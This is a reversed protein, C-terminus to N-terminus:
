AKIIVSNTEAPIEFPTRIIMQGTIPNEDSEVECCYGDTCASLGSCCDFPPFNDNAAYDWEEGALKCIQPPTEATIQNGSLSLYASIAVFILIVALFSLSKGRM